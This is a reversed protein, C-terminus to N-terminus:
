QGGFTMGFKRTALESIWRGYIRADVEDPLQLEKKITDAKDRLKNLESRTYNTFMLKGNKDCSALAVQGNEDLQKNQFGHRVEHAVDESVHPMYLGGNIMRPEQALDITISRSLTIGFWTADSTEGPRDAPLSGNRISYDNKIYDYYQKFEPIQCLAGILANLEANTNKGTQSPDSSPNAEVNHESTYVAANNDSDSGDTTSATQSESGSDGGFLNHM